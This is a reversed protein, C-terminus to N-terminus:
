NTKSLWAIKEVIMAFAPGLASGIAAGVAYIVNWVDKLVSVCREITSAWPGWDFYSEGGEMYTLYDDVLAVIGALGTILMGLPTTLLALNLIKWAAIILGM